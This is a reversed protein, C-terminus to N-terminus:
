ETRAEHDPNDVLEGAELHNREAEARRAEEIAAVEAAGDRYRSGRVRREESM